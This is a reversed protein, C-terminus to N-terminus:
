GVGAHAVALVHRREELGQLWFNLCWIWLKSETLDSPKRQSQDLIAETRVYRGLDSAISPKSLLFEQPRKLAELVASRRSPTKPRKRTKEPLRGLMAERLLFKRFFWPLAPIALLFEVLRLDLFPYRVEVAAKTYAPDLREFMYRWQPFFLSGYSKPHQPHADWRIWSVPNSWRENLRLEEVVGPNLWEPFTSNFIPNASAFIRRLPGRLGDPARFRAVAHKAGDVVAEVRRGNRWLRLLQIAPQCSMLNDCGEGSLVVATRDAIQRFQRVMAAFLPSDVPEPWQLGEIGWGQFFRTQDVNWCHQPVGLARAVNASAPGDTDNPDDNTFTFAHLELPQGGKAGVERCVSAVSSSDMGGSLLIGASDGRIRDAVAKSLLESFHEVYEGSKKYRIEGDTPPRWYERIEMGDTSWRLWHARPLRRIDAFSTTGEEYNMGFLLFDCIAADNLRESIGPHERVCDLTNSFVLCSDNRSFYLHRIGFHDTACFLQRRRADWLGLAFDGTVHEVLQEEWVDYAHLLLQSDSCSVSADQGQVRLMGVLEERADLRVDATIWTGTGLTEPQVGRTTDGSILHATHALGIAGDNWIKQADPGRFSLRRTMRLLLERSVPRGDANAIGAIGSM